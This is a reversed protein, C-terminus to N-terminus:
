GLLSLNCKVSINLFWGLVTLSVLDGQSYDSSPFFLVLLFLVLVCLAAPKFIIIIKLTYRM